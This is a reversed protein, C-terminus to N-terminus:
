EDFLYNIIYTGSKFNIGSSSDAEIIENNVAAEGVGGPLLLKATSGVPVQIEMKMNNGSLNWNVTITGYPTEKRTKAWTIGKPIQPNIIFEKYAVKNNIPQIGGVSQYFWQGVGNYCNHIRSREGNWHEWTTTAGNELMHLYGPYSTKKLMSYIFDPQNSKTAWEMMVPIGVLGCAIHGQHNSQTNKILTATVDSLQNDPVVGALMPYILDIQSGSVFSHESENYFTDLIKQNLKERKESYLKADGTKGL